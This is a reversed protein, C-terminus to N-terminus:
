LFASAWVCDCGLRPISTQLPDFGSMRLVRGRSIAGYSLGGSSLSRFSVVYSHRGPQSSVRAASSFANGSPTQDFRVAPSRM